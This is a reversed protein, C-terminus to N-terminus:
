QEEQRFLQYLIYLAFSIGFLVISQLSIKVMNLDQISITIVMSILLMLLSAIIFTLVFMYRKYIFFTIVPKILISIVILSVFLVIFMRKEYDFGLLELQTINIIEMMTDLM